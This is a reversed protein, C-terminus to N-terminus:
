NIYHELKNRENLLKSSFSTNHIHDTNVFKVKKKLNLFPSTGPLGKWGLTIYHELTNQGNM